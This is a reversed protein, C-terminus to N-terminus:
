FFSANKLKYSFIMPAGGYAYGPAPSPSKGVRGGGRAPIPVFFAFPAAGGAVVNVLMDTFTGWDWRGFPDYGM